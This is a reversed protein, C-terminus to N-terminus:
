RGARVPYWRSAQVAAVATIVEAVAVVLGTCDVAAAAAAVAAVFSSSSAVVAPVLQLSL